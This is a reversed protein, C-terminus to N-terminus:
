KLENKEIIHIAKELLEDKGQRIGRITPKIVYDIKVGVQQTPTGDPYFIGMGSIATAINGPLRILSVNGDAGATQSGIVKVNPSSQFAMTTYEAQSQTTSNVIVIIRGKYFNSIIGGGNSAKGSYIFSGPKSINFCEFKVFDTQNSKIYNGFTFPMFDSPYCRMDIVIGKTHEFDKKISLLEDNRYRAPYIYGIDNNILFHGTSKTYNINNFSTLRVDALPADYPFTLNGRQVIIKLSPDNNRLLYNDPLDRLQASYNSGPQIHLYTKILDSVKKGNIESIVDGIKLKDKINLTDLYYGTIVLKNEIFKAQFPAAYNGKISSLTPNGGMINAHCDKLKGILELTVLTYEKGNSANIFKPIFEILVKNWDKGILNKYPYYYNIMSWYRYLSLLRFGADPYAISNYSKENKFRPNGAWERGIWYNEGINRNNKIFDLKNTLSKSLFQGTLLEGYDPKLVENRDIRENCVKCIKPAPLKDLYKELVSSLQNNNKANIVGPLLRFLEADWNYDGQSVSPHHYKLFGWYQGTITLNTIQRPTMLISSIKSNRSFSTDTDAKKLILQKVKEIPKDDIFLEFNDFWAKGDGANLGGFHIAKVGAPYPLKIIYQKWDKTGGIGQRQMNEFGLMKGDGDLRLWLGAFGRKVGATKMYGRLEIVKGDFAEPIMYDIVGFESKDNIKQLSISYKGNQKVASDLKTSYGAAQEENFSFSWGIPKKSISDINEFDGNFSFHTHTCQGFLLTLILIYKKMFFDATIEM